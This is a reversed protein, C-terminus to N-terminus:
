RTTKRANKVHQRLEDVSLAPKKKHLMAHCNPCVPCLDKVPDVEYESGISSLEKIHHVHIFGRGIDGYYEKFSMECVACKYGHKELCIQRATPNREYANVTVKRRAGEVFSEQSDHFDIEDPYVSIDRLGLLKNVQQGSLKQRIEMLIKDRIEESEPKDAYWINSQGMGGKVMKPIQITRREIPLLKCNSEEAVIRYGDVNNDRQCPPAKDFKQYERYVTANVYWGVIVTKGGPAPDKATWIVNVNEIFDDNSDAGLKDIKITVREFNEPMSSKMDTDVGSKINAGARGPPQVYGYIQNEYPAFNCVEFGHGEEDVYSGGGRIKDNINQGKQGRYDQMWGINCFLYAM